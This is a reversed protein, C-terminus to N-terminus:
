VKVLKYLDAIILNPEQKGYLIEEILKPPLFRLNMIRRVYSNDSDEHSLMKKKRLEHYYFAKVIAQILIENFFTDNWLIIKNGLKKTQAIVIDHRFEIFEADVVNVRLDEKDALKQLVEILVNKKFSWEIHKKYIVVKNLVLRIIRDNVELKTLMKLIKNQKSVPLSRLLSQIKQSDKFYEIVLKRVASESELGSVKSVTGIKEPINKM